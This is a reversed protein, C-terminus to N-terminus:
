HNSHTWTMWVLEYLFNNNNKSHFVLMLHLFFHHLNWVINQHLSIERINRSGQAQSENRELNWEQAVNSLFTALRVINFFFIHPIQFLTNRFLMLIYGYKWLFLKKVTQKNPSVPTKSTESKTEKKTSKPSSTTRVERRANVKPPTQFSFCCSFGHLLTKVKSNCPM